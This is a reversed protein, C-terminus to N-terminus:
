RELFSFHVWACWVLIRNGRSVNEKGKCKTEQSPTLNSDLDLKRDWIPNFARSQRLHSAPQQCEQCKQLSNAWWKYNHRFMKYKAILGSATHWFEFRFRTVASSQQGKQVWIDWGSVWMDRVLHGGFIKGNNYVWCIHVLYGQFIKGVSNAM